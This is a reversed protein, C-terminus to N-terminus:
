VEEANAAAVERLKIYGFHYTIAGDNVQAHKATIGSHVQTHVIGTIYKSPYNYSGARGIKTM